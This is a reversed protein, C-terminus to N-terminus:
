ITYVHLSLNKHLAIHSLIVRLRMLSLWPLDFIIDRTGHDDLAVLGLKFIVSNVIIKHGYRYIYKYNFAHM